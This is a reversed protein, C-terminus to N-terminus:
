DAAIHNARILEVWRATDKKVFDSLERGAVPFPVMGIESLRKQVEPAALSEAMAAGMKAIVEPAVGAPAFLVAWTDPNFGKLLPGLPPVQKMLDVPQNGTVGLAVLRGSAVHPLSTPVTDFMVDVQGGLIATTALSPSRYPVHLMDVGALSKFLEAALHSTTGNGGSAYTLKGPQAKARGILEAVNKVGTSPHVVLVL